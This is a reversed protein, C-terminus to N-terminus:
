MPIACVGVDEYGPPATGPDFFPVCQQEPMGTCLNEAADLDCYETCCGPTLCGPVSQSGVCLLGVDCVNLFECEDGYAGGDGSADIDCVFLGEATPLCLEGEPCSPTLPDCPAVCLILAGGNSVDCLLGDPCKPDSPTGSCMQVCGGQNEADVGWCILGVDCDDVGSAPSGEVQCDDGGQKPQAALPVCVTSDHIGDADSDVPMCKSTEPCDQQWLSCEGEIGGGEGTTPAASTGEDEGGGTPVAGTEGTAGTPGGAEGDGESGHEFEVCGALAALVLAGCPRPIWIRKARMQVRASALV